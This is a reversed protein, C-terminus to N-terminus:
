LHLSFLNAEPDDLVLELCYGSITTLQGDLNRWTYTSVLNFTNLLELPIPALPNVILHKEFADLTLRASEMYLERPIVFTQFRSRIPNVLAEFKQQLILSARAQAANLVRRRSHRNDPYDESDLFRQVQHCLRLSTIKLHQCIVKAHQCKQSIMSLSKLIKVYDQAHISARVQVVCFGITKKAEARTEPLSAESESGSSSSSEFFKSPRAM